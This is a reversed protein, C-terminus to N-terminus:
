VRAESCREADAAQFLATSSPALPCFPLLYLVVAKNNKKKEDKELLRLVRHRRM